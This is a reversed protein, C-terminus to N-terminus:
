ETNYAVLLPLAESTDLFASTVQFIKQVGIAAHPELWVSLFCLRAHQLGPLHSPKPPLEVLGRQAQAYM